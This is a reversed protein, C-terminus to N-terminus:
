RDGNGNGDVNVAEERDRLRSASSKVEVAESSERSAARKGTPKMFLEVVKLRMAHDPERVPKPVVKWLKGNDRYVKTYVVKTIMARLADQVVKELDSSSTGTLRTADTVRSEIARYAHSKSKDKQRPKDTIALIAAKTTLPLNSRSIQQRLTLDASPAVEFEEPQPTKAAM